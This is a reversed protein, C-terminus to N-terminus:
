VNNKNQKSKGGFEDKERRILNTSFSVQSMIRQCDLKLDDSRSDISYFVYPCTPVRHNQVFHNCSYKM